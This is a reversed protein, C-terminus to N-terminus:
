GAEAWVAAQSQRGRWEGATGMNGHELDQDRSHGKASLGGKRCGVTGGGVTGHWTGVERDQTGWLECQVLVRDLWKKDRKGASCKLESALCGGNVEVCEGGGGGCGCALVQGM